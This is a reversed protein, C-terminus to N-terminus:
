KPENTAPEMWFILAFIGHLFRPESGTITDTSPILMTTPGLGLDFTREQVRVPKFVLKRCAALTKVQHREDM